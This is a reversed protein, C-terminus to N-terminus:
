VSFLTRGCGTIGGSSILCAPLSPFLVAWVKVSNSKKFHTNEAKMKRTIKYLTWYSYRSGPTREPSRLLSQLGGLDSIHTAPDAEYLPSLLCYFILVVVTIVVNYFANIEPVTVARSLGAVAPKLLHKSWACPDDPRWTLSTAATPDQHGM